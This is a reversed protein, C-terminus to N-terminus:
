ERQWRYGSGERVVRGWPPFPEHSYIVTANSAAAEALIRKRSELLSAANRRAPVWDLHAIECGHHVLDGLYFFTRSSSRVRVVCHGASEGPAALMSVGPVVERDGDVLELLGLRALTGLHTALLSSRDARQPNLEWDARGVFVRAHPYRPVRAGNQETTVGAYHDSHTHSILVHTIAAPAIGLASLAAPLGPSRVLGPWAADHPSGPPDFGPDILISAAGLRIHALVLGLPVVGQADAEPMARRWEAEPAQLELAWPLVGESIASVVADGIRRTEFFPTEPMASM